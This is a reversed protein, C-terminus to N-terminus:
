ATVLFQDLYHKNLKNKEYDNIYELINKFSKDRKYEFYPMIYWDFARVNWICLSQTM